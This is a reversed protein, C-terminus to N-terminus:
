RYEEVPKLRHGSECGVCHHQTRIAISTFSPPQEVTEEVRLCVLAQSTRDKVDDVELDLALVLVVEVELVIAVDMSSGM